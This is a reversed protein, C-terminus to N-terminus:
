VLRVDCPENYSVVPRPLLLALTNGDISATFKVVISPSRERTGTVTARFWRRDGAPALGLALVEQGIVLNSVDVHECIPSLLAAPPAAVQGAPFSRRKPTTRRGSRRSPPPDPVPPAKLQPSATPLDVDSTEGNMMDWLAHSQSVDVLAATAPQLGDDGPKALEDTDAARDGNSGSAADDAAAGSADDAVSGDDGDAAADDGGAAEAAAAGAVHTVLLEFGASHAISPKPMDKDILAEFHGGSLYIWVVAPDKRLETADTLSMEVSPTWGPAYKIIRFSCGNGDAIVFTRDLSNALVHIHPEGMFGNSDYVEQARALDYGSCWEDNSAIVSDPLKSVLSDHILARQQKSSEHAASGYQLQATTRGVSIATSFILCNNQFSSTGMKRLNLERCAAALSGCRGHGKSLRPRKAQPEVSDGGDGGDGEDGSKGEGREGGEGGETRGDRISSGGAASKNTSSSRAAEIDVATHSFRAAFRLNFEYAEAM